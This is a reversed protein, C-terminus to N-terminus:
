QPSAAAGELGVHTGREVVVTPRCVGARSAAPHHDGGALRGRGGVLARAARWSLCPRGMPTGPSTALAEAREPLPTGGGPRLDQSAYCLGRAIVGDDGKSGGSAETTQVSQSDMIAASPASQRGARLRVARRFAEHIRQWVGHRRGQRFTAYTPHWPPSERPLARWAGGTRLVYFMANVLLRLAWSRPQRRGAPAPLRPALQAREADPLDCPSLVAASAPACPM